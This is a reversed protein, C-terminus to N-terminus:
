KKLIRLYKVTTNNSCKRVCRLFFDYDIIFEYNISRIDIDNTKYKWQLFEVTHSLSTTYRELTGASYHKPVLAAIQSNHKQFIPVLMRLKEHKGTYKNKLSIATLIEKELILARYADYLKNEISLLFLNFDKVMESRGKMRGPNTQWKDPDAMKNISIESRKGSVTIRLYVPLSGKLYNKPKKLFFIHQFTNAM